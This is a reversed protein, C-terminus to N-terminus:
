GNIRYSGDQSMWTSFFDPGLFGLFANKQAATATHNQRGDSTLSSQWRDCRGVATQQHKPSDEAEDSHWPPWPHHIIPPPLKFIM